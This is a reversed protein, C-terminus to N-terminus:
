SKTCRITGVTTRAFRVKMSRHQGNFGCLALQPFKSPIIGKLLYVPAQHQVPKSRRLVHVLMITSTHTARHLAALRVPLVVKPGARHGLSDHTHQLLLQAVPEWSSQLRLMHKTHQAGGRHTHRSYTGNVLTHPTDYAQCGDICHVHTASCGHFELKILMLLLLLYLPFTISKWFELKMRSMIIIMGLLVFFRLIHKGAWPDFHGGAASYLVAAGFGVLAMLIFIVRWPLAAIPAPIIRNM